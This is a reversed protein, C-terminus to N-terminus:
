PSSNARRRMGPALRHADPPPYCSEGALGGGTPAPRRLSGAIRGLRTPPWWARVTGGPAKMYFCWPPRSWVAIPCMVLLTSSGNGPMTALGFRERTMGWRLPLTFVVSSGRCVTAVRM